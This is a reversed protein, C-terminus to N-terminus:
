KNHIESWLTDEIKVKSGSPMKILPTNVFKKGASGDLYARGKTDKPIDGAMTNELIRYSADPSVRFIIKEECQDTVQKTIVETTPRQTCYIIHIGFKRGKRAYEQLKKEISDRLRHSSTPITAIDAAEDIIWLTRDIEFSENQLEQLNQVQYQQMLDLRNKYEESHIKEIFNPCNEITTEIEVNARMNRLYLFDVGAFDAIYIKRKPNVYLFQFIVWKLFNSKGSGPVGAVLRHPIESWSSTVPNGEDDLGVIYEDKTILHRYNKFIDEANSMRLRNKEMGPVLTDGPIVLRFFGSIEEITGLRHLPKLDKIQALASNGSPIIAGGSSPLATQSFNTPNFSSYINTSGDGLENNLKPKIPERIYKEGFDGEWGKREFATSIEIKESARLNELFKQEDRDRSIIEIYNHEGYSNTKTASQLLTMLVTRINSRTEALGKISYKLLNKNVYNTQYQKYIDLANQLSDDKKNNILLQLQAVIQGLANVWTTRDESAYCSQITIELIFKENLRHLVDCVTLMSNDQEAEFLYPLYYGQLNFVEPKIIEGIHNVWGIDNLEYLDKQLVNFKYFKSLSGIELFSAIEDRALKIDDPEDASLNIILYLKLQQDSSERPDHFYRISIHFDNINSLSILHLLLYKQSAINEQYTNNVYTKNLSIVYNDIIEIVQLRLYLKQLM